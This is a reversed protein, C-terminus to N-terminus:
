APEATLEFAAVNIRRIAAVDAPTEPRITLPTPM